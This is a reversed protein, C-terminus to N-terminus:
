LQLSIYAALSERSPVDFRIKQELRGGRQLPQDVLSRRPV